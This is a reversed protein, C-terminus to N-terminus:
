RVNTWRSSIADIDRVVIEDIDDDDDDVLVTTRNNCASISSQTICSPILPFFQKTSSLSSSSISSLDIDVVVHSAPVVVKAAPNPLVPEVPNKPNIPSPRPTLMYEM